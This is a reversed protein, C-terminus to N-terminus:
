YKDVTGGLFAWKVMPLDILGNIQSPSGTVVVGIIKIKDPVANDETSKLSGFINEAMQQYDNEQTRLRQLADIFHQAGYDSAVDDIYTFGVVDDGIITTGEKDQQYIDTFGDIDEQDFTDVWFWALRDQFTEKVEHLSYQDDFSLAVEIINNDSIGPIIDKDDSGDYKVKPHIFETAREGNFYMPTRPSDPAAEGTAGISLTTTDGFLSYKKELPAWPVPVDGVTKTFETRSTATFLSHVTSTTKQDINAGHISNWILDSSSESEIKKILLTNGLYSILFISGLSVILTIFITRLYSNFKAKKVLKKFDSNPEFLSKDKTM